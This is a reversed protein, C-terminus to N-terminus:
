NREGRGLATLARSNRPEIALAEVLRSSAQPLNNTEELVRALEIQPDAKQPNRAAWGELLRFAADQGDMETLLLRRPASPDALRERLQVADIFSDRRGSATLLGGGTDVRVLKGIGLRSVM